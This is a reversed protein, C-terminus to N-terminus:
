GSLRGPRPTTRGFGHAEMSSASLIKTQIRQLCSTVLEGGRRGAPDFHQAGLARHRAFGAGPHQHRGVPQHARNAAAMQFELGHVLGARQQGRGLRRRQLLAVGQSGAQALAAAAHHPQAELRQGPAIQGPQARQGFAAPLPQRRRQLHGQKAGAMYAMRQHAQQGRQGAAQQPHVAAIRHERRLPQLRHVHHALM